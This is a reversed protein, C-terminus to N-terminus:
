LAAEDLGFLRQLVGLYLEGGPVAAAEKVRITPVHLLETVVGATLREVARREGASLAALRRENRALEAVRIEEARRRLSAVAAEVDVAVCRLPPTL